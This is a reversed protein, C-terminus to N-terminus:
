RGCEGLPGPGGPKGPRPHPPAGLTVLTGDARKLAVARIFGGDYDGQVTLTEGKTVLDGNEGRPGADVLTRGSGDQVIFKNGYIEAVEGKIAVPDGNKMVSIPAPELLLVSQARSKQIFHTAGAGGAAGLVLVGLALALAKARRPRAQRAEPPTKPDQFTM